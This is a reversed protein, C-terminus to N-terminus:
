LIFFSTVFSHEQLFTGLEKVFQRHFVHDHFQCYSKNYKFFHILKCLFFSWFNDLPGLLFSPLRSFFSEGAMTAIGTGMSHGWVVMKEIRFAVFVIPCRFYWCFRFSLPIQFLFLFPFLASNPSSFFHFFRPIRLHYSIFIVRYKFIFLFSLLASNPSSFFHFYLPIQLHCFHNSKKGSPTLRATLWAVAAFFRRFFHQSFKKAHFTLQEIPVLLKSLIEYKLTHCLIKLPKYFDLAQKFFYQATKCLERFTNM